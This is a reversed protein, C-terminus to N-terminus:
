RSDTTERRVLLAVVGLVALLLFVDWISTDVTRGNYLARPLCLVAADPPIASTSSPFSADVFDCFASTFFNASIITM